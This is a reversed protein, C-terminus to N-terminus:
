VLENILNIWMDGVKKVNFNSLIFDKGKSRIENKLEPNTELSNIAKVINDTITFRGELDKSLSEKQMEDPNAGEPFDLWVCYGDFIEPLAGLPYTVVIAGLAIAEAVVCSFTDKHVDQYPTYLPYVFYESEALHTFLTHKDVGNHRKFFGHEHNHTALLYDFAHFEKDEFELKNIADVAVNGGRAWAAHFIFKHPKRKPNSNLVEEVMEDMIPNPILATKVKIDPAKNKIHTLTGGNMSREWESINVIGLSLNNNNAFNIFEDIGYIWQMHSWYIISKTVKIPLSDYQNFWLMSILIDFERNEIGEFDLHTYRVGYFKEGGKYRNGSSKYTEHLAPELKDVAFVVEHGCKVLYEAILISSTDTGSGGGNGYRLTHGNLYNSRRSNGIVIFAIRM